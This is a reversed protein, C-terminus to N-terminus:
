RILRALARGAKSRLEKADLTGDKDTDAANFLKEVQALYEDESLTKDDDTDAERFDKGSLRSGTEKRDLTSDKDKELRDFVDSAAAKVEALDLTGDHDTDLTDILSAALATKPQLGFFALSLGFTSAGFGALFFRSAIMHVEGNPIAALTGSTDLIRVKGSFTFEFPIWLLSISGHSFLLAWFARWLNRVRSPLNYKPKIFPAQLVHGVVRGDM